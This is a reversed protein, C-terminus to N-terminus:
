PPSTVVCQVSNTPLTRLMARVDGELLKWSM